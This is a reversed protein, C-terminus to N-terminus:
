KYFLLETNEDSLWLLNKDIHIEFSKNTIIPFFLEEFQMWHSKESYMVTQRGESILVSDNIENFSSMLTNVVSAEVPFEYKFNDFLWDIDTSNKFFTITPNKDAPPYYTQNKESEFIKVLYWQGYLDTEINKVEYDPRKFLEPESDFLECSSCIILLAIALIKTKM